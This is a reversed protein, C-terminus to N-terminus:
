VDDDGEEFAIAPRGKRRYQEEIENLGSAEVARMPVVLVGGRVNVDLSAKAGYVQPKRAKLIFMLLDPDIKTVTEAIPAGAADRLWLNPDRDDLALGLDVYDSVKAPDLKYQVRGKYVGPEEYGTARMHGVAEVTEVGAAMAAEWADNFRITNDDTGNEDNEGMPMDFGDGPFGEKSKQLWYKLTTTSIEARRCVDATIPIQMAYELIRALREPTNKKSRRPMPYSRSRELLTLSPNKTPVVAEVLNEEPEAVPDPGLLEDLEADGSM